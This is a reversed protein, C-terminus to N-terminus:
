LGSLIGKKRLKASVNNLGRIIRLSEERTADPTFTWVGDTVRKLIVPAALWRRENFESVIAIRKGKSSATVTDLVFTGHDDFQLQIVFGDPSDALTAKLVDREDLFSDKAVSVMIPAGRLIPVMEARGTTDGRAELHLRITSLEKKQRKSEAAEKREEPTKCGLLFLAALLYINFALSRIKM